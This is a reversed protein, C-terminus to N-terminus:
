LTHALKNESNISSMMMLAQKECIVKALTNQNLRGEKYEQAMTQLKTEVLCKKIGLYKRSSRDNPNTKELYQLISHCLQIKRDRAPMSVVGAQMYVMLLKQQVEMMIHHTSCVM